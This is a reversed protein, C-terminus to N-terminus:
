SNITNFYLLASMKVLLWNSEGSPRVLGGYEYVVLVHGAGGGVFVPFVLACVLEFVPESFVMMINHCNKAPLTPAGAPSIRRNM